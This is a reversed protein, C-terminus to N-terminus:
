DSRIKQVFAPFWAPMGTGSGATAVTEAIKPAATPLLKSAAKPMFPLAAGAAMMKLFARRTLGGLGFPMRLQGGYQPKQMGGIGQRMQQQWPNQNMQHQMLDMQNQRFNAGSIGAPQPAPAPMQPGQMNLQPTQTEQTIAPLGAKGGGSFSVRGGLFNPRRNTVDMQELIKVQEDM